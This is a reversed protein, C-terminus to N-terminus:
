LSQACVSAGTCSDFSASGTGDMLGRLEGLLGQSSSVSQNSYASGGVGTTGLSDAGDEKGEERGRWAGRVGGGVSTM